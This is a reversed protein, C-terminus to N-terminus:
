RGRRGGRASCRRISCLFGCIFVRDVMGV